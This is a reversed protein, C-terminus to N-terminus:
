SSLLRRRHAMVGSSPTAVSDANALATALGARTSVSADALAEAETKFPGVADGDPLCGRHM